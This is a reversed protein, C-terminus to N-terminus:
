GDEPASGDPVRTGSWILMADGWSLLRYRAAIAHEYARLILERGSFAATLMLLTSRPAHFNTFLADISRIRGPPHIFLDTAGAAPRVAGDKSASELARVVTTGVGVVRRGLSRARHIESACDESVEFWESHMAHDRIDATTVPRFTGPGVHLTVCARRVGRTALRALLDESFHLGATPAAVAGPRAALVTQYRAADEPDRADAGRARKIYPPLPVRGFRELWALLAAASCGTEVRWAGDGLSERLVIEPGPGESVLPRIAVGAGLRGRARVLVSASGEAIQVFLVEVRGQTDARRAEIRAKIVRTDNFVLVDGPALLTVLDTVSADTLSCRERDVVLLRSEDRRALPAQAILEAPLEFDYAEAEYM